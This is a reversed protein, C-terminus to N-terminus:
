YRQVSGDGYRSQRWWELLSFAVAVVGIAATFVFVPAYGVKEIQEGLAGRG